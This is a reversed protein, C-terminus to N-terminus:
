SVVSLIGQFSFEETVTMTLTLIRTSIELVVVNTLPSVFYGGEKRRMFWWISCTYNLIVVHCFDVTLSAEM